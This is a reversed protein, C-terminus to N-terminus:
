QLLRDADRIVEPPNFSALVHTEDTMSSGFMGRIHKTVQHSTVFDRLSWALAGTSPAHWTLVKRTVCAGALLVQLAPLRGHQLLYGVHTEALASANHLKESHVVFLSANWSMIIYM